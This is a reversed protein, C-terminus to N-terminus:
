ESQQNNAQLNHKYPQLYSMGVAYDGVVKCWMDSGKHYKKNLQLYVEHLCAQQMHEFCLVNSHSLMDSGSHYIRDSQNFSYSM